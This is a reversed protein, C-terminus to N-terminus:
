KRKSTNAYGSRKDHKSVLREDNYVNIVDDDIVVPQQKAKKKGFIAEYKVDYEDQSISSPRPSSGKGM